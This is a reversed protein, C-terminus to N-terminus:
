LLFSIQQIPSQDSLEEGGWSCRHGDGFRHSHNTRIRCLSLITASTTLEFEAYPCYRTYELHPANGTILYVDSSVVSGFIYIPRAACTQLIVIYPDFFHFNQIIFVRINIM